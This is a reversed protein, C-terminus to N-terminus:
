NLGLDRYKDICSITYQRWKDLDSKSFNNIDIDTFKSLKNILISSDDHVLEKWSVNCLNPELDVRNKILKLKNKMDAMLYIITFATGKTSELHTQTHDVIWKGYYAKSIEYIDEYDYYIYIAKNFHELLKDADIIHCAFFYPTVLPVNNLSNPQLEKILELQEDVSVNVFEDPMAMEKFNDHTNGHESLLIKDKFKYKAKTLFYGLFHGGSGGLYGIPIIDTHKQNMM